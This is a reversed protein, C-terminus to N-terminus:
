KIKKAHQATRKEYAHGRAWILGLESRYPEGGAAPTSATDIFGTRERGQILVLCREGAQIRM